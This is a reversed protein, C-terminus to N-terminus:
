NFGAGILLSASAVSTSKNGVFFVFSAFTFLCDLVPEAFFVFWSDNTVRTLFLILSATTIRLYLLGM